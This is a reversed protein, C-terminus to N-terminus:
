RSYGPHDKMWSRIAARVSSYMLQDRESNPDWADVLYSQWEHVQGSTFYGLGEHSYSDMLTHIAEGLGYITCASKVRARAQETTSFHYARNKYETPDRMMDVSQSALGLQRAIELPMGAETAAQIPAYLHPGYGYLGSPDTFNVPNNMVYRYPNLGGALGIPDPQLYFWRGSANTAPTAANERRSEAVQSASKRIRHRAPVRFGW